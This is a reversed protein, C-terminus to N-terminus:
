EFVLQSTEWMWLCCRGSSIRDAVSAAGCRGLDDLLMVSGGHVGNLCLAFVVSVAEWFVSHIRGSAVGLLQKQLEM